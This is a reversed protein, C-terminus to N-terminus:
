KKLRQQFKVGGLFITNELGFFKESTNGDIAILLDCDVDKSKPGLRRRKKTCKLPITGSVSNISQLKPYEVFLNVVGINREDNQVSDKMFLRSYLENWNKLESKNLADVPNTTGRKTKYFLEPTISRIAGLQNVSRKFKFQCLTLWFQKRNGNKRLFFLSDPGMKEDPSCFPPVTGDFPCDLIERIWKITEEPTQANM